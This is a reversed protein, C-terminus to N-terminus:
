CATCGETEAPALNFLLPACMVVARKVGKWALGLLNGLTPSKRPERLTQSQLSLGQTKKGVGNKKGTKQLM